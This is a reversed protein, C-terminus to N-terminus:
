VSEEVLYGGGFIIEVEIARISETQGDPQKYSVKVQSKQAGSVKKNSCMYQQSRTIM